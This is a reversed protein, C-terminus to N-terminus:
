LDVKLENLLERNIANSGAFIGGSIADNGCLIFVKPEPVARYAIKIAEAMNETIPGTVLIGDAHRPSPVFEIGYRGM